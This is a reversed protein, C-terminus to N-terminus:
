ADAGIARLKERLQLLPLSWAGEPPDFGLIAEAMELWLAQAERTCRCPHCDCCPLTIPKTCPGWPHESMQNGIM